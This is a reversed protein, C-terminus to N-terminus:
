HQASHQPQGNLAADLADRLEPWSLEGVSVYSVTGDPAVLVTVPIPPVSYADSIASNLDEILPLDINWLRLYSAAVDHPESSVTVVILNTRYTERARVFHKLEDTCPKCWSAWFNILVAKGHLSWLPETRKGVPVPFDPPLAHFRITALGTSPTPAAATLAALVLAALM